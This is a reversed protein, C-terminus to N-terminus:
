YPPPDVASMPRRESAVRLVTVEDDPRMGPPRSARPVGSPTTVTLVGDPTMVYRWGRAHTKLRHHRRCLCCLNACDTEGGEAHAVVHDLDAWGARNGCGPHRCTRDRTRGFRRQRPTPEYRDVAPPPGLGQGRRVATELERRTVAAILRGDEDTISLSMTGDTPAQLGGPCLADLRELLERAVAATVPEGDVLVPEQGTGPAGAAGAELTGLSAVVELHASVTPREQWSRTVLDHLVASRLQGIPREDGAKKLAHAHADVEARMGSAEPLPMTARLEGMGNGVGRVTVDADREAKKRRRDDAAPDAKILEGRVLARLRTISLGTAQPLVVAEVAALVDDPSERAPWGLEAAIARARAWDLWGDALAAWTAPLRRLLTTSREWLQTAAARSTNLVLALEDPFFESVDADLLQAAWEGSAAGTQGRRRDGSAPRDTALGVVLEAKFAALVAEAEEVRQLHAAKQEPTMLDVPLLDGLRSPRSVVGSPLLGGDWVVPHLEAVTVGVGFAEPPFM